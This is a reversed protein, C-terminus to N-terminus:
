TSNGLMCVTKLFIWSFEYALHAWIVSTGSYVLRRRSYIYRNMRSLSFSGIWPTQRQLNQSLFNLLQSKRTFCMMELCSSILAWTSILIHLFWLPDHFFQIELIREFNGFIGDPILAFDLLIIPSTESSFFAFFYITIEVFGLFSHSHTSWCLRENVKQVNSRM